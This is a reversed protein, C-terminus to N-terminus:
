DVGEARRELGTVYSGTVREVAGAIVERSDESLQATDSLTADRFHGAQVLCRLREKFVEFAARERARGIRGQTAVVAEAFM